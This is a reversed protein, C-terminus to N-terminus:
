QCRATRRSSSAARPCDSSCRLAACRPAAPGPATLEAPSESPCVCSASPSPGRASPTSCSATRLTTTSTWRSRVLYGDDERSARERPVMLTESAYVGAGLSLSREEGTQLDHKVLGNFLFKGAEGTPAYVFRNPRTQYRPNIRGFETFQESLPEERTEGTRLDFRWRHLRTEFQDLALSRFAPEEISQAGKTSPRPRGQFFGELVVEHGVEYANTFHLVYTPAAEFWRIPATPDHRHVIAFRSPLSRDFTPVHAGMALLDAKWYLPFDNLVVFNETFAMDHPLRPGPLPVDVERRSRGQADLSGFRLFPEDKSYSFFLLEGTAADVKPHASVGWRAFSDGFDAKELTEGTTLSLGYVDGCFYFTSLAEGRFVTIDTSSADKMRGRIGWGDERISDAPM